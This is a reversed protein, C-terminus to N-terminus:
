SAAARRSSIDDLACPGSAARTRPPVPRRGGGRERASASRFFDSRARVCVRARGEVGEKGSLWAAWSRFRDIVSECRMTSGSVSAPGTGRRLSARTAGQIGRELGRSRGAGGERKLLLPDGLPGSVATTREWTGLSRPANRFPQASMRTTVSTPGHAARAAVIAVTDV